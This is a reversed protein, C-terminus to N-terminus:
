AAATTSAGLELAVRCLAQLCCYKEQAAAATAAASPGTQVPAAAEGSETDGPSFRGGGRGRSCLYKRAERTSNLRRQRAIQISVDHLTSFKVLHHTRQGPM